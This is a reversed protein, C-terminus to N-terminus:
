KLTKVSSHNHIIGQGLRRAKEGAHRKEQSRLYQLLRNTKVKDRLESLGPNSSQFFEFGKHVM